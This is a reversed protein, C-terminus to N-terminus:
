NGALILLEFCKESLIGQADITRSGHLISFRQQRAQKITRPQSGQDVGGDYLPILIAFSDTQGPELRELLDHSTFPCANANFEHLSRLRALLLIGSCGHDM